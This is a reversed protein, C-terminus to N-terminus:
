LVSSQNPKDFTCRATGYIPQLITSNDKGPRVRPLNLQLSGDSRLTRNTKRITILEQLYEPAFGYVALYTYVLIKYKPHFEVLLWHLGVLILTIHDRKRKKTILRAANNQIKQLREVSSKNLGFLIRNGYDLRSTVLSCSLRADTSIFSRIRGINRLHYNCTKVISAVQKEM